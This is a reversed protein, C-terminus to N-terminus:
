EAFFNMCTETFSICPKNGQAKRRSSHQGYYNWHSRLTFYNSVVQNCLTWFSKKTFSYCNKFFIFFSLLFCIPSLILSQCLFIFSSTLYLTYVFWNRFSFFSRIFLYIFDFSLLCHIFEFLRLREIHRMSSIVYM